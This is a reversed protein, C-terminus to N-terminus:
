QAENLDFHAESQFLFPRVRYGGDPKRILFLAACVRGRESRGPRRDSQERRGASQVGGSKRGAQGFWLATGRDLPFREIVVEGM